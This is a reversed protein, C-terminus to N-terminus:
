GGGRRDIRLATYLVIFTIVGVVLNWIRSALLSAEAIAGTASGPPRATPRTM